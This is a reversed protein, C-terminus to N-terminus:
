DVRVGLLLQYRAVNLTLQGNKVMRAPNEIVEIIPNSFVDSVLYVRYQNNEINKEAQVWENITLEVDTIKQGESAKVEIFLEQGHKDFSSVDWGPTRNGADERHWNVRAALDPRNERILKKKEFEVVIEEGLKGVKDSKKSYRRSGSNTGSSPDAKRKKFVRPEFVALQVESKIEQEDISEYVYSDVDALLLSESMSDYLNVYELYDRKLEAESPLNNIEYSLSYISCKEYARLHYDGSEDLLVPGINTRTKTEILSKSVLHASNIKMNVVATGLADFFKKGRGYQKEFQYAGFGIALVLTKLDASILYVLYYGKTASDTVELNLTAFWPTRLINGQGDSGVFKYKSKNLTWSELVEPIEDVVLKHMSHEKNTTKGARYPEWSRALEPIYTSLM